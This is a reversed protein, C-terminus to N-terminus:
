KFWFNAVNAAQITLQFQCDRIVIVEVQMSGAILPGGRCCFVRECHYHHATYRARKLM